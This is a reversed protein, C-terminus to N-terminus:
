TTQIAAPKASKGRLLSRAEHIADGIEIVVAAIVTWDIMGNFWAVSTALDTASLHGDVIGVFNGARLLVAAIILGCIDIGIRARSRV